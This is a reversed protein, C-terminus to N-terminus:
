YLHSDRQIVDLYEQNLLKSLCYVTHAYPSSARPPQTEDDALNDCYM